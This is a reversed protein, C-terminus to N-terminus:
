GLRVQGLWDMGLGNSGLGAQEIQGSGTSGPQVWGKSIYVGRM